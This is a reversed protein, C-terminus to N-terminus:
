RRYGAPYKLTGVNVSLPATIAGIELEAGNRLGGAPTRPGERLAAGRNVHHSASRDPDLARLRVSIASPQGTQTPMTRRQGNNPRRKCGQSLTPTTVPVPAPLGHPASAVTEAHLLRRGCEREVGLFGEGARREQMATPGLLSLAASGARRVGSSRHTKRHRAVGGRPSGIGLGAM